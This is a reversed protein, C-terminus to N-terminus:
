NITLIIPTYTPVKMAYILHSSFRMLIIFSYQPAVKSGSTDIENLSVM